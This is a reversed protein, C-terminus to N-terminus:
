RLKMTVVLAHSAPGALIASIIANMGCVHTHLQRTQHACWAGHDRHQNDNSVCFTRALWASSRRCWRQRDSSGDRHHGSRHRGDTGAVIFAVMKLTLPMAFMEAAVVVEIVMPDGAVSCWQHVARCRLKLM